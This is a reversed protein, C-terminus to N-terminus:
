AAGAKKGELKARAKGHVCTCLSEGVRGSGHCLECREVKPREPEVVVLAPVLPSAKAAYQRALKTMLGAPNKWRGQAHGEDYLFKVFGDLLLGRTELAARVRDLVQPTLESGNAKSRYLSLLREKPPKGEDDDSVPNQPNPTEPEVPDALPLRKALRRNGQVEEMIRKQHHNEKASSYNRGGVPVITGPPASNDKRESYSRISAALAEHWLFRYTVSHRTRASGSGQWPREGYIFGQRELQHIYKRVQRETVGLERALTAQSPWAEGKEGAYWALRGFLLKAGPCLGDYPLLAGPVFAGCFLGYPNYTQGPKLGPPPKRGEAM